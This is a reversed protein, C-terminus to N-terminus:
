FNSIVLPNGKCFSHNLFLRSAQKEFANGPLKGLDPNLPKHRYSFFSICGIKM